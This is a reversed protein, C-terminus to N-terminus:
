GIQLFCFLEVFNRRGLFKITLGVFFYFLICQLSRAPSAAPRFKNRGAGFSFGWLIVATSPLLKINLLAIDLGSCIGLLIVLAQVFGRGALRAAFGM